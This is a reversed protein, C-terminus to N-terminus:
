SSAGGTPTSMRYAYMNGTKNKTVVFGEEKMRDEFWGWLTTDHIEMVVRDVTRLSGISAGLFIEHEAGEVDVKLLDVHPVMALVDDLTVATVAIGKDSLRFSVESDETSIHVSGREGAVAQQYAEVFPANMRVLQFNDPHPEYALIRAQPRLQRIQIDFVGINAGIDIVTPTAPLDMSELEYPNQQFLELIVSLDQSFVDRVHVVAGNRLHLTAGNRFYTNFPLVIKYWDKCLAIRNLVNRTRSLNVKM